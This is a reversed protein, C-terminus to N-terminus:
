PLRVLDGDQATELGKARPLPSLELPEGEPVLSLTRHATPLRVLKFARCPFKKAELLPALHEGQTVLLRGDGLDHFFTWLPATRLQHARATEVALVEVQGEGLDSEIEALLRSRAAVTEYIQWGQWALICVAVTACIRLTWEADIKLGLGDLLAIASGALVPTLFVAALLVFISSAAIALTRPRTRAALATAKKREEDTLARRSVSLSV